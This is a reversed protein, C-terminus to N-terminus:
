RLGCERRAPADVSSGDGHIRDLALQEAGVKPLMMKGPGVTEAKSISRHVSPKSM